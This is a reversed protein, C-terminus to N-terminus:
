SFSSVNGSCSPTRCCLVWRLPAPGRQWTSPPPLQMENPARLQKTPPPPLRPGGDVSTPGSDVLRRGGQRDGEEMWHVNESCWGGGRHHGCLNPGQEQSSVGRLCVSSCHRHCVGIVACASLSRFSLGPTVLLCRSLVLPPPGPLGGQLFVLVCLPCSGNTCKNTVM